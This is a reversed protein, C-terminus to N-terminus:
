SFHTASVKAGVMWIEGGAAMPVSIIIVPAITKFRMKRKVGFYRLQLVTSRFHAEGFSLFLTASVNAGVMWIEGGVAMPVSIIIVPAITEFWMKRKVGFYRFQLVTSRFHAEGFSSFLTASVNAGVMWIEGGVAMPVSIIIVPAITGFWM